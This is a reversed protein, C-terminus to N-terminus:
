SGGQDYHTMSFDDLDGSLLGEMQSASPYMSLFDPSEQAATTMAPPHLSPPFVEDYPTYIQAEFASGGQFPLQQYSGGTPHIPGFNGRTNGAAELGAPSTFYPYDFSGGGGGGGGDSLSGDPFSGIPKGVISAVKHLMDECLRWARNAALDEEAMRRLWQVAKQASDLIKDVEEPVHDAQFSLELMSITSAQVLHHVLCWWPAVKYLGVPNPENPLLDLMDKAAHVCKAATARDFERSKESAHPMTRNMRCLCPRSIIMATSYFFLGLYMRQRSFQQDRQRKSFDFIPPLGTRWQELKVALASIILQVHAWSRTVVKPRYLQDLVENTVLGLKTQLLFYLAHSAPIPAQPFTPDLSDTPSANMKTSSSSSQNPPTDDIYPSQQSPYHPQPRLERNQFAPNGPVFFSEEEVPRPLPVTSDASLFASPRGTMVALRFDM